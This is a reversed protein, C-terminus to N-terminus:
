SNAGRNDGTRKSLVRYLEDYLVIAQKMDFIKQASDRIQQATSFGGAAIQQAARDIAVCDFDPLILGSKGEDIIQSIDGIGKNSLVPLGCSLYEGVKTASVGLSSFSPNIFCIGFDAANLVAPVAHHPVQCCRIDAAALNLGLAEARSIHDETDHEGLFLIRVPLGYAKLRVTLKYLADIRYLPGASGLYALVLDNPALGLRMRQSARQYPDTTFLQQDVSCPVVAISGGGFDPHRKIIDRADQTLVVIGASIKFAQRELHRFYNTVLQWPFSDERWAGSEVRQDIWFGRMDFVFPLGMQKSLRLVPGLPMYSRCHLLNIGESLIAKKLKAKLRSAMVFRELKRFVPHVARMVSYHVIGAAVLRPKVELNYVSQRSPNEVSVCTIRHGIDALGELYPLVQAVGIHDSLGNNTVFVSRIGSATTSKKLGLEYRM